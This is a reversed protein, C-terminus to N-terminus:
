QNSRIGAQYVQMFLEESIKVPSALNNTRCGSKDLMEKLEAWDVPNSMLETRDFRYAQLMKSPDGKATRLIDRWSYAGLRHYQRSLNTAADRDTGLCLSAARVQQVPDSVYWLIRSGSPIQITSGSFYVNELALAPRIPVSFLEQAALNSDFLSAAWQRRIPVVYCPIGEGIVKLPWFRAELDVATDGQMFKFGPVAARIKESAESAVVALALVHRIWNGNETRVFGLETLASDVNKTSSDTVEIRTRGEAQATTILESIKRRLLTATTPGSLTRLFEVRLEDPDDRSVAAAIRPVEGPHGLLQIECGKPNGVASRVQQMWSAKSEGTAFGQFPLLQLESKAISAQIDTGHLRVPEYSHGKTDGYLRAVLESPRLIAM